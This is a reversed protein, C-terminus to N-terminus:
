KQSVRSKKLGRRTRSGVPPDQKPCLGVQRRWELEGAKERESYGEYERAIDEWYMKVLLNRQSQPVRPKALKDPYLHYVRQLRRQHDELKEGGLILCRIENRIREWQKVNGFIDKKWAIGLPDDSPEVIQLGEKAIRKKMEYVVRSLDDSVWLYKNCLDKVVPDKLRAEEFDYGWKGFKVSRYKQIRRLLSLVDRTYPDL